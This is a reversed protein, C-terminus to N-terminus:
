EETSSSGRVILSSHLVINQQPANPVEIKELLLRVAVRAMEVVNQEVATIQPYVFSSLTTGSMTCISVSEPISINREQLVRKAGLAQTETFCYIADFAIGKRILKEIAMAGDEVTMGGAVVLQPDYPIHFKDLAERYARSRAYSNEIYSPGTMNVIRKRGTRILHEVLFFSMLEDNSCVSSCRMNKITRDFFVLPFDSKVLNEFLDRNAQNHTVSVLIGDIRETKFMDINQRERKPDESSVAILVRYGLPQVAEQVTTVFTMFFPTTIEPVLIGIIKSAKARLNVALTNRRYGMELAKARVREITAPSVNRIDGSLARSVSSKSIKLADAIDKITVYRM